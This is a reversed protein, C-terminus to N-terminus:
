VWSWATRHRSQVQMTAVDLAQRVEEVYARAKEDLDTCVIQGDLILTTAKRGYYEPLHQDRLIHHLIGWYGPSVNAPLNWVKGKSDLIVVNVPPAYTVM